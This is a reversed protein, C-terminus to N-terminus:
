QTHGVACLQRVTNEEFLVAPNILLNVACIFTGVPFCIESAEQSPRQLPSFLIGWFNM